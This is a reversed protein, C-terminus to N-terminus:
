HLTLQFYFLFLLLIIQPSQRSPPLDRTDCLDVSFCSFLFLGHLWGVVVFAKYGLVTPVTVQYGELLRLNYIIAGNVKGITKKLFYSRVMSWITCAALDPLCFMASSLMADAVDFSVSICSVLTARALKSSSKIAPTLIM